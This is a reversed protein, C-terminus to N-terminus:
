RSPAPTVLLSSDDDDDDDGDSVGDMGTAAEYGMVSGAASFFGGDEQELRRYHDEEEEEQSLAQRLIRLNLLVCSAGIAFAVVVEVIILVIVGSSRIPPDPHFVIPPSPTALNYVVAATATSHLCGCADTTLLVPQGTTANFATPFDVTTTNKPFLHDTTAKSIYFGMGSVDNRHLGTAILYNLVPSITSSAKCGGQSWVANAGCDFAFLDTADDGDTTHHQMLQSAMSYAREQNPVLSWLGVFNSADPQVFSHNNQLPLYSGHQESWLRELREEATALWMTVLEAPFEQLSSMHRGELVSRMQILDRNAQVLMAAHEVSSVNLAPCAAATENPSQQKAKCELLYVCPGYVEPLFDYSQWVQKPIDFPVTWGAKRIQQRVEQLPEVWSHVDWLTEWPHWIDHQEMIYKHYKYIRIYLELFHQLDHKSQPSWAYVDLVISAHLPLASLASGLKPGPITSQNLYYANEDMSVSNSDYRYKPLFGDASRQGTFLADLSEWALSVNGAKAFARAALLTSTSEQVGSVSSCPVSFSWTANLTETHPYFPNFNHTTENYYFVDQRLNQFLLELAQDPLSLNSM